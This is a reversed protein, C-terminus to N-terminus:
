ILSTQATKLFVSMKNQPRDSPCHKCGTHESEGRVSLRELVLYLYFRELGGCALTACMWIFVFIPLRFEFLGNALHPGFVQLDTLIELGINKM